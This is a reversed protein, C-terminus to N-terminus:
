VKGAEENERQKRMEEEEERAKRMKEEEEMKKKLKEDENNKIKTKEEEVALADGFEIEKLDVLKKKMVKNKVNRHKDKEDLIMNDNIWALVLLKKEETSLLDLKKRMYFTTAEQRKRELLRENDTM